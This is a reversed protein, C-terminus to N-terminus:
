RSIAVGLGLGLGTGIVSGTFAGAMISLPAFVLGGLTPEVNSQAIAGGVLLGAVAGAISAAAITGGRHHTTKLQSPAIQQADPQAYVVPVSAGQYLIVTNPNSVILTDQKSPQNTSVTVQANSSNIGVLTFFFTIFIIAKQM